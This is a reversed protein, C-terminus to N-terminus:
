DNNPDSANEAERAVQRAARQVRSVSVGYIEALRGLYPTAPIQGKELRSVTSEHKGLREGVKSQSLGAAVRLLKLAPNM